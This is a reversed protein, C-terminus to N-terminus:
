WQLAGSWQVCWALNWHWAPHLVTTPLKKKYLCALPKPCGSCDRRCERDLDPLTPVPTNHTGSLARLMSAWCRSAPSPCPTTLAEHLLTVLALLCATCPRSCPAQSQHNLLSSATPLVPASNRLVPVAFGKPWRGAMVLPSSSPLHASASLRLVWWTSAGRWGHPSGDSCGQQLPSPPKAATLVLHGHHM